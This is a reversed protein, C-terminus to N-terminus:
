SLRLNDGQLNTSNNIERPHYASHYQNNYQWCKSYPVNEIPGPMWEERISVDDILWNWAMTGSYKFAIYVAEGQYDKLHSNGDTGYPILFIVPITGALGILPCLKLIRPSHCRGFIGMVLMM